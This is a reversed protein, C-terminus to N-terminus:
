AEVLKGGSMSTFGMFSTTFINSSLADFSVLVVSAIFYEYAAMLAALAITVSRM